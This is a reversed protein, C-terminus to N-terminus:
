STSNKRKNMLYFSRIEQIIQLLMKSREIRRPSRIAEEWRYSLSYFIRNAESWTRPYKVHSYTYRAM